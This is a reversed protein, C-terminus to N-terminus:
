PGARRELATVRQDLARLESAQAHGAVDSRLGRLEGIVLAMQGRMEKFQLDVHDFRQDIQEFRQGVQGRFEEFETRTVVQERFEEFAARTVCGQVAELVVRMDSQGKESLIMVDHERDGVPTPIAKKGPRPAKRRPTM